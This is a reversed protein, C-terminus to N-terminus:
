MPNLEIELDMVVSGFAVFGTGHVKGKYVVFSLHHRVPQEGAESKQVPVIYDTLIRQGEFTEPYPLQKVILDGAAVAAAVVGGLAAPSM